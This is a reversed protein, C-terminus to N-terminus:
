LSHKKMSMECPIDAAVSSKESQIPTTDNMEGQMSGSM